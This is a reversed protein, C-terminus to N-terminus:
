EEDLKFHRIGRGMHFEDFGFKEYIRDLFQQEIILRDRNYAELLGRNNYDEQTRLTSVKL